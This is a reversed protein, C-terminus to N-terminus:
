SHVGDVLSMPTMEGHVQAGFRKWTDGSVPSTMLVAKKYIGM